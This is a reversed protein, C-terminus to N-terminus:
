LSINNNNNLWFAQSKNMLYKKDDDDKVNVDEDFIVKKFIPVRSKIQELIEQLVIMPTSRHKGSVVILLSASQNSIFGLRHCIYIHSVQENDQYKDTIELVIKEMEKLSMSSYSSYHLRNISPQILTM